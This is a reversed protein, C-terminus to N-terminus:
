PPMVKASTFFGSRSWSSSLFCPMSTLGSSTATTASAHDFGAFFRVLRARFYTAHLRSVVYEVAYLGTTDTGLSNLSCFSRVIASTAESIPTWRAVTHFHILPSQRRAVTGVLGSGASGSRCTGTLVFYRPM